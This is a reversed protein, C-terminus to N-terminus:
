SASSIRVEGSTTSFEFRSDGDGAQYEASSDDRELVRIDFDGCSFRGSVTDFAAYFSSEPPLILQLNGSVSDYELEEPCSSAKLVIDGSTTDADATVASIDTGEICGSVTDIELCNIGLSRFSIDASVADLSLSDIEGALSDPVKLILDKDPPNISLTSSFEVIHLEGNRVSYQLCTKEEIGDSCSEELRIDTGDYPFIEVNGCVWDVTISDIEEASVTYIGDESFTSEYPDNGGSTFISGTFVRVLALVIVICLAAGAIIALYHRFSLKKM